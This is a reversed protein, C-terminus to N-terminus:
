DLGGSRLRSGAGLWASAARLVSRWSAGVAYAGPMGQRDAAVAIQRASLPGPRSPPALRRQPRERQDEQRKVASCWREAAPLTPWLGLLARGDAVTQEAAM